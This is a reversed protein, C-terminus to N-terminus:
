TLVDPHFVTRLRSWADAAVFVPVRGLPADTVTTAGGAHPEGTWADVWGGTPLYTPWRRAGPETVNARSGDWQSTM